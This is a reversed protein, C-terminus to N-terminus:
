TSSNASSEFTEVHAANWYNITEEGIIARYSPIDCLELLIVYLFTADDTLGLMRMSRIMRTLRLFNHNKPTIWKNLKDIDHGSNTSYLGYFDMMRLFADKLKVRLDVSNNFLDIVEPTVLPTEQMLVMSPVEMPFAWQIHGHCKELWDDDAYLFDTLTFGLTEKLRVDDLYFSLIPNIM